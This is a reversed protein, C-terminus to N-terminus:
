TARYSFTPPINLAYLSSQLWMEFNRDRGTIQFM